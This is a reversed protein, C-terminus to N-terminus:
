SRGEQGYHARIRSLRKRVAAGSMGVLTAAEDTTRGEIATLWVVARDIPDTPLLGEVEFPHDDHHATELDVAILNSKDGRRAASRRHARVLNVLSTRLYAGPDDLEALPGQRLAAVLVEQVMDDPEMDDDGVVAAFRRLSPYLEGFLERETRSAMIIV